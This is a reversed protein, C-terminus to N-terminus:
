RGKKGTQCARVYKRRKTKGCEWGGQERTRGISKKDKRERNIVRATFYTHNFDTRM